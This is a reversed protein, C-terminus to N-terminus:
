SIAGVSLKGSGQTARRTIIKKFFPISKIMYELDKCVQAQKVEPYFQVVDDINTQIQEVAATFIRDCSASVLGFDGSSQLLFQWYDLNKEIFSALAYNIEVVSKSYPLSIPYNKTVKNTKFHDFLEFEFKEVSYTFEEDNNAM